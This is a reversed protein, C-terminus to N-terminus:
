RTYRLVYDAIAQCPRLDISANASKEAELRLRARGEVDWGLPRRFRFRGDEDTKTKLFSSRAGKSQLPRLAVVVGRAGKGDVTLRGSISGTTWKRNGLVNAAVITNIISAGLLVAVIFAPRTLCHMM